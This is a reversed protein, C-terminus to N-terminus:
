AVSIILIMIASGNNLAHATMSAIASGRWERITSLNFGIVGIAPIAVWGQPHLIAFILSSIIASVLWPFSSRLYGYLAGRFLTEEVFPAYICALLFLFLPSHSLNLVAPHTPTKGTIKILIMVVILAIILLPLGTIFGAIGAGVERFIGKGRNWGIAERYAKWEMGRIWPWLIPLLGAFISALVGGNFGPIFKLVLLPLVTSLVLYIAFTEILVSLTSEPMMLHSKIKGKVGYIIAIIFLIVGCILVATVMMSLLGLLMVMRFASKLVAQREPDSDPKDQSLALRGVWGYGKIVLLQNSDLSASGESYLTYFLPLNKGDIVGAPDYAMHKLEQIAAERGSIEALIPINSLYRNRGQIKKFAKELQTLRNTFLPSQGAVQKIGVFYKGSIQMQMNMASDMSSGDVSKRYITIQIFVITAIILFWSVAVNVKSRNM